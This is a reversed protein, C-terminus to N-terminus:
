GARGAPLVLAPGQGEAALAAARGGLIVVSEIRGGHRKVTHLVAWASRAAPHFWVAPTGLSKACLLGARLIGALNRAPTAHRVLM